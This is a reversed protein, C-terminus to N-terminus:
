TLPRRRARKYWRLPHVKAGSSEASGPEAVACRLHQRGVHAGREQRRVSVVVYTRGTPTVLADGVAVAFGDYYIGVVAGEPAASM